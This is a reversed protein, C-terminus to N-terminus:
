ILDAADRRDRKSSRPLAIRPSPRPSPPPLLRARADAPLFLSHRSIPLALPGPSILRPQHKTIHVARCGTVTVRKEVLRNGLTLSSQACRCSSMADTGSHQPVPLKWSSRSTLGCRLM